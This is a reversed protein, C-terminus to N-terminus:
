VTRAYEVSPPVDANPFALSVSPRGFAISGAACGSYASTAQSAQAGPELVRVPWATCAPNACAVDSRVVVTSKPSRKVAAGSTNAPRTEVPVRLPCGRRSAAESLRIDSAVSYSVQLKTTEAASRTILQITTGVAPSVTCDATECRGVLVDAVVCM